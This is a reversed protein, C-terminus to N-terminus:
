RFRLALAITHDGGLSVPIVDHALLADYHREIIGISKELSFTNLAVDGTNKLVESIVGAQPAPVELVVKDTELELLIEDRDVAEGPGKKWDLLTADPISEALVPVKVDVLM